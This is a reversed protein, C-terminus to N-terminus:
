YINGMGKYTSHTRVYATDGKSVNAVVASSVTSDAKKANLFTIGYVSNNIMLQISHLASYLRVVLVFVYTGTKPSTFVGTHSNYGSDQKTTLVDFILRRGSSPNTIPKSMFAYFAIITSKPTEQGNKGRFNVTVDYQGDETQCSSTAGAFTVM